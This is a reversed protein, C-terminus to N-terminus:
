RSELLIAKSKAKSTRLFYIGGYLGWAASIGLALLPEKFTGLGFVPGVLYFAM